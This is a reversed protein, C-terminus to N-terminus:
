PTTIMTPAPTPNAACRICAQARVLDMTQRPPGGSMRAHRARDGYVDPRNASGTFASLDAQDTWGTAVLGVQGGGVADRIIEFMKYLAVWDPRGDARRSGDRPCAWHSHVEPQPSVLKFPMESGCEPCARTMPLPM